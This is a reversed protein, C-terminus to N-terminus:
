GLGAATNEKQTSFHEPTITKHHTVDAPTSM